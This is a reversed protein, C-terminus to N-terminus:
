AMPKHIRSPPSVSASAYRKVGIKSHTTGIITTVPKAEIWKTFYDMAVILFKVKGPGEPFPRAIDIGWKHFDQCERILKRADARMTPWYYRARIAKAVVSRTKAHMRRSKRRVSRAKEKKAPLTEETLYNYIPTMWTDGEEEVVALVEVENISKKNLEEVLVQKTLHAFHIMGLEKAIYSGNVQNAVLRSDVNAQLNKIGMQEAIWLGAILAEYEAENNTADFLTWPDPLEEEAEM